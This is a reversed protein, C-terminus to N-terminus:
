GGGELNVSESWWAPVLDQSSDYLKKFTSDLIYTCGKDKPTRCIRGCSQMLTKLFMWRYWSDDKGSKYKIAPDALSVWPVKAIVQWRGLDEPLDIGEYLGSAVLVRGEEPPSELFSAYVDGKDKRGHWMFRKDTLHEKLSEALSYTAHIVGKQKEHRPLLVDTIHSALIRPAKDRTGYTVRTQPTYHVPRNKAPIPSSCDIYCVRKKDLGLEQIDKKNITASMLVVKNVKRPNWFYPPANSVDIPRMKIVDRMEYRYWDKTREILYHPNTANLENHLLELKPDDVTANKFAVWSALDKYDYVNGPYKYDHKWLQKAMFDQLTGVLNHAEDIVITRAVTRDKNLLALYMYYNFLGRNNNMVIRSDVAHPCDNCCVFSGRKSKSQKKLFTDVEKCNMGEYRDDICSYLSKKFLKPYDPFDRLYQQLLINTPTIIDVEKLWNALCMAIRSKGSATPAVIVFVDHSDWAKELELLVEKQVKRPKGSFYSLINRM